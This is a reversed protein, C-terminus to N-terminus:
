SKHGSGFVESKNVLSPKGQVSGRNKTTVEPRNVFKPVLSLLSECSVNLQFGM